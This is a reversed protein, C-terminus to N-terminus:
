RKRSPRQNDNGCLIRHISRDACPRFHLISEYKKYNFDYGSNEIFVIKQFDSNKIWKTIASHYHDLRTNVDSLTTMSNNFKSSDITGTLLLTDMVNVM